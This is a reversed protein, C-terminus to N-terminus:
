PTEKLFPNDAKHFQTDVSNHHRALNKERNTYVIALVLWLVNAAAIMCGGLFSWHQALSPYYYLNWGGWLFFFATTEINVGRVMKQLYLTRCNRLIFLAGLAEFAGNIQDPTM